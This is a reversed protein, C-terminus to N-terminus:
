YNLITIVLKSKFGSCSHVWAWFAWVIFKYFTPSFVLRFRPYLYQYITNFHFSDCMCVHLFCGGVHGTLIISLSSSKRKVTTNRGGKERKKKRTNKRRGGKKSDRKMNYVITKAGNGGDVHSDPTPLKKQEGEGRRSGEVRLQLAAQKSNLCWRWM